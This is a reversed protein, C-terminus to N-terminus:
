SYIRTRRSRHPNSPFARFFFEGGSEGASQSACFLLQCISGITKYYWIRPTGPPIRKFRPGQQFYSPIKLRTGHQGRWEAGCGPLIGAVEASKLLIEHGNADNRICRRVKVGARQAPAADAQNGHRDIDARRGIYTYRNEGVRIKVFHQERVAFRGLRRLRDRLVKEVVKLRAFAAPSSTIAM